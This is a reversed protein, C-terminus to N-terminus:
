WLLRGILPPAPPLACPEALLQPAPSASEPATPPLSPQLVARRARNVAREHLDPPRTQSPM